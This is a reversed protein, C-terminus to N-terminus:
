PSAEMSFRRMDRIVRQRDMATRALLYRSFFDDRKDKFHAQLNKMTRYEGSVRAPKEPRFGSAFPGFLYASRVDHKQRLSELFPSIIKIVEDKPL